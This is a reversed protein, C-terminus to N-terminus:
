CDLLALSRKVKMPTWLQGLDSPLTFKALWSQWQLNTVDSVVMQLTISEVCTLGDMGKKCSSGPQVYRAHTFWLLVHVGRHLLAVEVASMM